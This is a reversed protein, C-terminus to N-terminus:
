GNKIARTEDITWSDDDAAAGATFSTQDATGPGLKDPPTKASGVFFHKGEQAGPFFFGYTYYFNGEPKWGLKTLNKTYKKHETWYLQEATHLSALVMAAEAKHAQKYYRFYRPLAISALFAIIAVVVMLEILTFAQKKM